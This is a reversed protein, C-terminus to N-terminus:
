KNLGYANRYYYVEHGAIDNSEDSMEYKFPRYSYSAGSNDQYIYLRKQSYVVYGVCYNGPTYIYVISYLDGSPIFHYPHEKFRIKYDVIAKM